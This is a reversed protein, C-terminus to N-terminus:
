LTKLLEEAEKGFCTKNANKVVFELSEKAKENEGLAIYCKASFMTADVKSQIYNNEVSDILEIAKAYDGKRYEAMYEAAKFLYLYRDKLKRESINEYLRLAKEYNQEAEDYLGLRTAFDMLNNYYMVKTIYHVEPPEEINISVMNDYAEKTRGVCALACCRDMIAIRTHWPSIDYEILKETVDLLPYPDCQEQLKKFASGIAFHCIAEIYRKSIFSLVVAILGCIIYSFEFFVAVAMLLTFWILTAIVSLLKSNRIAFGTLKNM